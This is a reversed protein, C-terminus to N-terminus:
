KSYIKELMIKYDELINIAESISESSNISNKIETSNKMGKIYWAAHKRMERVAKYEGDYELALKYHKICMDIKDFENPYIVEEGNFIQNIQKILWPNGKVGRAVMVADCGTVEKINIADDASFVDGNAIVPISVNQKVKGIIDWNAKGEYMQERTRGHVAICDAGAEEIAKAFEVVNVSNSDFGIRCKVTVPKTSVKKVEKVIQSALKIDKMLAAGEGNRVIKPVPCGMNIDVLCFKSNNNFYDYCVKAMIYPDNGFMQVAVQKEKQSVKMLNETNESGYYLGKASVMETYTLGCGMDVCIERFAVNTVGAMPALFVESDFILNSIKM